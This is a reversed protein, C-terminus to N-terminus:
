VKKVIKMIESTVNEEGCSIAHVVFFLTPFQM